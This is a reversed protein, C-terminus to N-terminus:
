TFREVNNKIFFSRQKKWWLAWYGGVLGFGLLVASTAIWKENAPLGFTFPLASWLVALVSQAIVAWGVWWVYISRKHIGYTGLFCLIIFILTFIRDPNSDYRYIQTENGNAYFAQVGTMLSVIGLLAFGVLIVQLTRM